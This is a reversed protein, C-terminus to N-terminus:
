ENKVLAGLAVFVKWRCSLKARPASVRGLGFGREFLTRVTSGFIKRVRLVTITATFFYSSKM